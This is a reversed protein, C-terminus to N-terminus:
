KYNSSTGDGEENWVGFWYGISIGETWLSGFGLGNADGFIYMVEVIKAGRILRLDPEDEKFLELLASM